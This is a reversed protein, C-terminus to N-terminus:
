IELGIVETDDVEVVEIGIEVASREWSIEVEVLCDSETIGVEEAVFELGIYDEVADFSM